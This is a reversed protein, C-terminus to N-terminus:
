FLVTRMFPGLLSQVDPDYSGIRVASGDMGVGLVGQVADKRQVLKAAIIAAARNIQPPVAPWGFTGTVTIRQDFAVWGPGVESQSFIFPRAIAKIATWPRGQAQANRPELYFDQDLVWVSSQAELSILTNLEDIVCYGPNVPVFSRVNDTDTDTTFQRDCLEDVAASAELGAATLDDDWTDNTINLRAKLTALDVYDPAVVAM